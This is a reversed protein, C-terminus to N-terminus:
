IASVVGKIFGGVIVAASFVGVGLYLFSLVAPMRWGGLPFWSIKAGGHWKKPLMDYALHIIYAPLFGIAFWLLWTAGGAVGFWILLPVVPGHTWASRHRIPLPPALDIDPFTLGIIWGLILILINQM